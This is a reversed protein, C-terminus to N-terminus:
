KSHKKGDNNYYADYYYGYRNQRESAPVRNMVVGIINANVQDLLSKAEMVMSKQAIGYPVVLVTADARSGLVQADTVSIVPPADLIVLDFANTLGKLLRTMRKSALLESPNPPIPGCPLITLNEIETQRCARQLKENDEEGTLLDVLGFNNQIGFTAHVTPRRMDTDLLITRLGQKAFTAAINGSVTSKGESPGASTILLTHIPDDAKAYLINTRLTKYEESVRSMPAYDTILAVGHLLSDQSADHKHKFLKM